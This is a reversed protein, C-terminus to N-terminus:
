YLKIIKKLYTKYETQLSEPADIKIDAGFQALWGFFTGTKTIAVYARATDEDVKELRIDKGFHDM